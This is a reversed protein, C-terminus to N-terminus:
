SFFNHRQMQPHPLVLQKVIDRTAFATNAMEPAEAYFASYGKATLANLINSAFCSGLSAIKTDNGLILIM